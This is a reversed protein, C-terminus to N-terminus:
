GRLGDQERGVKQDLWIIAIVCAGKTEGIIIGFGNRKKGDGRRKSKWFGYVCGAEVEVLCSQEADLGESVM